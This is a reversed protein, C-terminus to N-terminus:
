ASQSDRRWAPITDTARSRQDECGAGEDVRRIEKGMRSSREELEAEAEETEM